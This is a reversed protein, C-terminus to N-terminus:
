VQDQAQRQSLAYETSTTDVVCDPQSREDCAGDQGLNAAWKPLAPHYACSMGQEVRLRRRDVVDKDKGVRVPGHSYISVGSMCWCLITDILLEMLVPNNKERKGKM